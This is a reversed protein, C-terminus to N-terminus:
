GAEEAGCHSNAGNGGVEEPQWAMAGGRRGQRRQAASFAQQDLNNSASDRRLM